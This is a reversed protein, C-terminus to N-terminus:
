LSNKLIGNKNYEVLEWVALSQGNSISRAAKVLVKYEQITKMKTWTTKKEQGLLCKIIIGDFPCHIPEKIGKKFVWNAKWYVNLLKQSTGISFKKGSLIHGFKKSTKNSFGSIARYHYSETYNHNELAANLWKELASRLFHKFEKDESSTVKRNYIKNRQFAANLSFRFIVNEILQRKESRINKSM